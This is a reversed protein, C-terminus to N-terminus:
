GDSGSPGQKNVSAGHFYRKVCCARGVRVQLVSSRKESRSPTLTLSLTFTPRCFRRCAGRKRRSNMRPPHAPTTFHHPRTRGHSSRELAPATTVTGQGVKLAKARRETQKNAIALRSLPSALDRSFGRIQGHEWRPTAAAQVRPRAGQQWSLTSSKTISLMSSTSRLRQQATCLVRM